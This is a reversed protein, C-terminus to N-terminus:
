NQPDKEGFIESGFFKTKVIRNPSKIAFIEPSSRSITSRFVANCVAIVGTYAQWFQHVNLKPGCVTFFLGLETKKPNCIAFIPGYNSGDM